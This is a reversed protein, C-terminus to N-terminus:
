RRAGAAASVAKRVLDPFNSCISDVGAAIMAQMAAEDDVTWVMFTLSRLQGRRVREPTASEHYVSVGQANLSLAFGFFEDWDVIRRGDTLLACAMRPEVARMRQVIQPWFSHAECDTIADAERVARAVHEEIEPQKIEIQLLARGKTLDIVEALTPIREGQFQPVFQKAGADLARVVELPMAHVDGTGDTTRDVTNDHLLVPVGDATVQVDFEVFCAGAKIAAAIGELTNEPYRKAYGRHAILQPIEM